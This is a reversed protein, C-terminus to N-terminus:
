KGGDTLHYDIVSAVRLGEAHLSGTEFMHEDSKGSFNMSRVVNHGRRKLWERAVDFMPRSAVRGRETYLHQIWPKPSFVFTRADIVMLGVCRGSEEMAVLVLIDEKGANYAAWGRAEEVGPTHDAGFAREFLDWIPPFSLINPDHVEFVDMGM